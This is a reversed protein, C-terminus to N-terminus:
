EEPTVRQRAWVSLWTELALYVAALQEEGLNLGFAVALVITARLASLILVPERGFM